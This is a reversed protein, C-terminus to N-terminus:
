RSTDAKTNLTSGPILTAGSWCPSSFALCQAHSSCWLSASFVVTAYPCWLQTTLGAFMIITVDCISEMDTFNETGSFPSVSFRKTWSDWSRSQTQQLRRLNTWSQRSSAAVTCRPPQAWLRRSVSTSTKFRVNLLRFVVCILNCIIIVRYELLALRCCDNWEM